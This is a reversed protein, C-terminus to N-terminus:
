LFAKSREVIISDLQYQRKRILDIHNQLMSNLSDTNEDLVKSNQPLNYWPPSHDFNYEGYIIVPTGHALINREDPTLKWQEAWYYIFQAHEEMMRVCSSSAPVGPLEYQHLSVGTKNILNFYWPLIWADNDTSITKKSKWNTHYLGTPTPTSKKGMSVPFWKLLKGCEYLGMAQCAYSILIIKNIDHLISLSDPFPSYTNIDTYFTDPVILTDTKYLKSYDIRNIHLLVNLEYENFYERIHAIFVSDIFLFQYKLEKKEFAVITDVITAEEVFITDSTTEIKKKSESERHCSVALLAICLIPIFPNSTM